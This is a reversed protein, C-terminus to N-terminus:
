MSFRDVNRENVVYTLYASLVLIPYKQAFQSLTATVFPVIKYIYATVGHVNM